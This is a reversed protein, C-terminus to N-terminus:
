DHSSWAAEDIQGRLYASRLANAIAVLRKDHLCSCPFNPANCDVHPGSLGDAKAYDKATPQLRKMKAKIDRALDYPGAAALIIKEAETM